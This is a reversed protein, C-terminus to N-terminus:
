VVKRSVVKRVGLQVIRAQIIVVQVNGILRITKTDIHFRVSKWSALYLPMLYGSCNRFKTAKMRYKVYEPLGQNAESIRSPNRLLGM